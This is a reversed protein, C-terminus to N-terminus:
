DDNNKSVEINLTGKRQWNNKNYLMLPKPHQLFHHQVSRQIYGSPYKFEEIQGAKPNIIDVPCTTRSIVRFTKSKPFLHNEFLRMVFLLNNNKSEGRKLLCLASSLVPHRSTISVAFVGGHNLALSDYCYGNDNEGNFINLIKIFYYDMTKPNDKNQILSSLETLSYQRSQM